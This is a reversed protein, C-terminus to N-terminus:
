VLRRPFQSPKEAAASSVMAVPKKAHNSESKSHRYVFALAFGTAFLILAILIAIFNNSKFRSEM